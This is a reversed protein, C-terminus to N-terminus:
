VRRDVPSLHAGALRLSHAKTKYRKGQSPEIMDKRYTTCNERVIGSRSLEFFTNRKARRPDKDPTSRALIKIFIEQRKRGSSNPM